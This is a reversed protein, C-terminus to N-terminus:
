MNNKIYENLEKANTFFNDIGCELGCERIIRYYGDSRKMIGLEKAEMKITNEKTLGVFTKDIGKEFPEFDM